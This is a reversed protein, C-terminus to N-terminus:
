NGDLWHVDGLCPEETCNRNTKIIEKVGNDTVYNNPFVLTSPIVLFQWSYWVVFYIVAPLVKYNWESFFSIFPIEAIGSSYYQIFLDANWM